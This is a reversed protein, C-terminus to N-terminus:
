GALPTAPTALDDRKCPLLVKFTTGQSPATEVKIAGRHGRVIGLVSALGLGRGTFKTTFFPDFIKSRTEADMGCGTDTVELFVYEGSPLNPALHAQALDATTARMIGTALSIVGPKGGMAESANIILNMLVQRIQTGDAVISPLPAALNLKLVVSRGISIRLLESMEQIMANLDVRQVMFRGKGAYALMQRCLEAARHATTEIATLYSRGPADPPAQMTLLSVNGLIAALLNNFDHAIGGALVGLSELRQMEQLKRDQERLAAEARLKETIDNVLTLVADKGAFTLGHTTIEVDILTGDKKLHRWHGLKGLALPMQSVSELFAPMDDRPRVDKITMALFEERTYGYHRVAANNVALFRMSGWEWVWMPEPNSEFLLRYREESDRLAQEARLKETVDRHTGWIRVVRGKEIVGVINNLFFKSQGASDLEHSIADTLRFNAEALSRLHRLTEPKSPPLIQHLRTGTMEAARCYGYMRAMADNCEALFAHELVRRAQEDFPLDLPVPEDLEFRWIAEGSQAVFHRYREESRRLAEEAEIRGTIDVFIGLARTIEGSSPDPLPIASCIAWRTRGSQSKCGLIQPQEPQRTQMCRFVPHRDAPCAAGDENLFRGEFDQASYKRASDLELHGRAEPNVTLVQGDKSVIIIGAPLAELIRRNLEESARLDQSARKRRTINHVNAFVWKGQFPVLRAEYFREGAQSPLSYEVTEARGQRLARAIGDTLRKGAEPPLVDAFTRGLFEEPKVYLEGPDGARYDLLRGQADLQFYLDPSSSLLGEV